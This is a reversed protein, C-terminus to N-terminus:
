KLDALFSTGHQPMNVQFNEAITAGVDAFTKRLPLEKGGDM